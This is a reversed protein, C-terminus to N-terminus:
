RVRQIVNVLHRALTAPQDQQIYHSADKVEVRVLGPLLQLWQQQEDKVLLQMDRTETEGYRTRVLLSMPIPPTPKSHLQAVCKEQDDFERRMASSFVTARMGNLLMASTPSRKQINQWHDPHTADVLVLAAVESPFLKLFAYNYLGGISHGVLVYPPRVGGRQLAERLDTAIQCADRPSETRPSSGYGPRDYAFVSVESPLENVAKAWTSKGDGLGSEFVLTPKASGRQAVAIQQGSTLKILNEPPLSACSTLASVLATVVAIRFTVLHHRM